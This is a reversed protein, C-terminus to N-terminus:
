QLLQPPPRVPTQTDLSPRGRTWSPLSAIRLKALCVLALVTRTMWACPGHPSSRGSRVATQLERAGALWRQGSAMVSTVTDNAVVRGLHTLMTSTDGTATHSDRLMSELLRQFVHDNLCMQAESSFAMMHLVLTISLMRVTLFSVHPGKALEVHIGSRTDALDHLKPRLAVTLQDFMKGFASRM